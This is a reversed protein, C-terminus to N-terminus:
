SGKKLAIYSGKYGIEFPSDLNYYLCRQHLIFFDSDRGRLREGTNEDYITIGTTYWGFTQPFQNYYFLIDSILAKEPNPFESPSYNSIHLVIREGWNTCFAAAYIKTKSHQYKGQYSVWEIDISASNIVENRSSKIEIVESIQSDPQNIELIKM